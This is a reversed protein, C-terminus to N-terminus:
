NEARESARVRDKFDIFLTCTNALTFQVDKVVTMRGTMLVQLLNTSCM